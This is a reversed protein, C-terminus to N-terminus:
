RDRDDGVTEAQPTERGSDRSSSATLWRFVAKHLREPPGSNDIVVTALALWGARDPQSAIRADVAEPSMGRELLRSRRVEEPVDVVVTPLDGALPLPVSLEVIGRSSSAMRHRLEDAILPHVIAELARLEARNTFVIGALRKRDVYGDVIVSPWREAVAARAPGALVDHGVRDADLTPLGSAAALRTVTSKGSGIGGTVVWWAM